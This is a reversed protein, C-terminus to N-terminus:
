GLFAVVNVLVDAERLEVEVDLQAVVVGRVVVFESIGTLLSFFNSDFLISIGDLDM